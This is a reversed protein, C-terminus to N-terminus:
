SACIESANGTYRQTIILLTGWGDAVPLNARLLDKETKRDSNRM